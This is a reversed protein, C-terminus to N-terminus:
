KVDIAEMAGEITTLPVIDATHDQLVPPGLLSTQERDETLRARTSSFEDELDQLDIEIRRSKMLNSLVLVYM